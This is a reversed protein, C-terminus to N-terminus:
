RVSGVAAFLLVVIKGSKPRDVAPADLGEPRERHAFLASRWKM